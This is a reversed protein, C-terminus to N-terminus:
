EIAMAENSMAAGSPVLLTACLLSGISMLAIVTGM